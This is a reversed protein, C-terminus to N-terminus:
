RMNQADGAFSILIYLTPLYKLLITESKQMDPNKFDLLFIRKHTPFYDKHKELLNLGLEQFHLLISVEAELSNSKAENIIQMKLFVNIYVVHM